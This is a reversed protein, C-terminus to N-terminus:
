QRSIQQGGFGVIRSSKIEEKENKTKAFSVSRQVGTKGGASAISSKRPRQPQLPLHGSDSELKAGGKDHLEEDSSWKQSILADDDDSIDQMDSQHEFVDTKLEQSKNMIRQIVMSDLPLKVNDLMFRRVPQRFSQNTMQHFVRLLLEESQFVHEYKSKLRIIM